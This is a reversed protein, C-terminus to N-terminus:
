QRLLQACVRKCDGLVTVQADKGFHIECYRADGPSTVYLVQAPNVFVSTGQFRKFEIFTMPQEPIRGRRDASSPAPSAERDMAAEDQRKSFRMGFCGEGCWVISGGTARNSGVILVVPEGSSVRATSEVRAGGTSVNLVRCDFSGAETVLVAPLLSKKRESKRRDRGDLQKVLISLPEDSM